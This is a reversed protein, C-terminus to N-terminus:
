SNHKANKFRKKIFKAYWIKYIHILIINLLDQKCINLSIKHVHFSVIKARCNVLFLQYINLWQNSNSREAVVGCFLNFLQGAHKNFGCSAINYIHDSHWGNCPKSHNKATIYETCERSSWEFTVTVLLVQPTYHIRFYMCLIVPKVCIVIHLYIEHM